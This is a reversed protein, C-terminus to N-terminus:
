QISIPTNGGPVAAPDQGAPQRQGSQRGATLRGAIAAIQEPSSGNKLAELLAKFVVVDANDLNKQGQTLAKMTDAQLNELQAMFMQMQQRMQDQMQQSQQAQRQEVVADDELLEKVPLDRVKLREVLLAKPKIWQREEETLTQALNDLAYSRMEKAMLSTAGRAIPRVDGMLRDRDPSFIRNWEVLAHIVSVTFQDFNRVIDKFPLAANGYIMSAGSSTRLAEGSVGEVDGGAAPSVFTEKDAFGMFTNIGQLLESIHSDFTIPMVARQGATGGDRRWVQFAKIGLDTQNPDIISTDVEVSPGCVTAANDVLMRTFNSVGLQSDRMIPPLGSGVLSIEDEEFVFKHFINTGEPLPNLAIKIVFEGVVWANYRFQRNDKADAPIDAGAERLHKASGSGWYELVEFKSGKPVASAGNTGLNRLTGEYGLETYNGDRNGAMFSRIADGDFDPREAMLSFQHKSFVHRQFEGEMQAFSSASLDPYYQWCPVFELYPRFAETEVVTPVGNADLEFSAVDQQVAMPGKVVGPGYKVASGVVKKVLAEYDRSAYPDVDKLQDDITVALLDAVGTAVDQVMGDLQVQTPQQGQNAEYWNQLARTLTDASLSPVPSAEISWNKESAPFTLSMLRAEVSVCKVRTLKPYARSTNAVMRQEFEADYKGLYQMLNTLWQQEISQRDTKYQTFKNQLHRGLKRKGETTNIDRAEEVPTDFEDVM